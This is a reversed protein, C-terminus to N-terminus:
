RRSRAGLAAALGIDFGVALGVDFGAGTLGAGGFIPAVTRSPLNANVTRETLHPMAM